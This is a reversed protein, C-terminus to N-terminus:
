YYKDLMKNKLARIIINIYDLDNYVNVIKLFGVIAKTSYLTNVM